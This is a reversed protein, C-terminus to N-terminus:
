LSNQLEIHKKVKAVIELPYNKEIEAVANKEIVLKEKYNVAQRNNLNVSKPGIFPLLGKEMYARLVMDYDEMGGKKDLEENFYGVDHFISRKWIICTNRPLCYTTEKRDKFLAYGCSSGDLLAVEKLLSIDKQSLLAENSVVMILENEYTKPPLSVIGANIAKSWGYNEVPIIIIPIPCNHSIIIKRTNIRDEKSNIVVILNDISNSLALRDILKLVEPNNYSRLIAHIKTNGQM